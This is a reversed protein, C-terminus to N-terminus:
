MKITYIGTECYIIIKNDIIEYNLPYRFTGLNNGSSIEKITCVMDYDNNAYFQIMYDQELFNLYKRSIKMSDIVINEVDAVYIDGKYCFFERTAAQKNLKVPGNEIASMDLSFLDYNDTSQNAANFYLVDNLIVGSTIKKSSKLITEMKYDETFTFIDRETYDSKEDVCMLYYYQNGDSALPFFCSEDDNLEFIKELSKRDASRKLLVFGNNISNGSVIYESDNHFVYQFLNDEDYVPIWTYAKTNYIGLRDDVVSYLFIENDSLHIDEYLSQPEDKGCGALLIATAMMITLVHKRKIM